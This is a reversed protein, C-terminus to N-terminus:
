TRLGEATLDTLLNWHQAEPSRHQRLWNREASTMSERCLTDERVLRSRELQQELDALKRATAEHRRDAQAAQRSLALVFGLRNQVDHLKAREFLWTWNLDPYSVVLWPLAETVRTELDPARLATLLVQAPNSPKRKLHAFGPYGLAGLAEALHRADAKQAKENPSELPLEAAPVAVHQRLKPMLRSTVPRRNQELLSLYTQSVGLKAALQQQTWGKEARADKLWRGSM